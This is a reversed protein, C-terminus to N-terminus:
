NGDDVGATIRIGRWRAETIERRMGDTIEGHIEVIDSVAVLDLCLRLALDRESAEDIFQPLYLQPAIPLHGQLVIRRAIRAVLAANGEPDAAYPHFVFIRAM